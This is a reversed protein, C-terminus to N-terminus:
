AIKFKDARRGAALVEEDIRKAQELTFGLQGIITKADWCKARMRYHISPSRQRRYGQNEDYIRYWHAVIEATTM